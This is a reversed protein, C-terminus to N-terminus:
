PKYKLGVENMWPPKKMKSKLGAAQMEIQSWEIVVSGEDKREIQHSTNWDLKMAKRRSRWRGNWDQPKCKLGVENMWPLDKMKEKFKMSQIEIGSWENVAAGEDKVEIRRGANWNMGERHCAPTSSPPHFPTPPSFCTWMTVKHSRVPLPFFTMQWHECLMYIDFPLCIKYQM